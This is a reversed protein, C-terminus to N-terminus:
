KPPRDKRMIKLVQLARDAWEKRPAAFIAVLGVLMRFGLYLSCPIVVPLTAASAIRIVEPLDM